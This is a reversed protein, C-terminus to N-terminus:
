CGTLQWDLAHIPSRLHNAFNGVESESMGRLSTLGKVALLILFYFSGANAMQVLRKGYLDLDQVKHMVAKREKKNTINCGYFLMTFPMHKSKVSRYKHELCSCWITFHIINAMEVVQAGVRTSCALKCHHYLEVLSMEPTVKHQNELEGKLFNVMLTIDETISAPLSSLKTALSAVSHQQQKSGVWQGTTQCLCVQFHPGEIKHTAEQAFQMRASRYRHWYWCWCWRSHWGQRQGDDQPRNDTNAGRGEVIRHEAFAQNLAGTGGGQEQRVMDQINPTPNAAYTFSNLEEMIAELPANDVAHHI